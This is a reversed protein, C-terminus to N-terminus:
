KSCCRPGQTKASSNNSNHFLCFAIIIHFLVKLPKEQIKVAYSDASFFLNHRWLGYVQLSSDLGM